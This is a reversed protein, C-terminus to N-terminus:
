VGPGAVEEGGVLPCKEFLFARCSRQVSLLLGRAAGAQRAAGFLAFRVLVFVFLAALSGPHNLGVRRQFLGFVCAAQLAGNIAVFVGGGFLEGVGQRLQVFGAENGGGAGGFFHQKGVVRGFLAAQVFGLRYIR